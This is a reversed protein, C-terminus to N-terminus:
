AVGRVAPLGVHEWREMIDLMRKNYTTLLTISYHMNYLRDNIKSMDAYQPSNPIEGRNMADFAAMGARSLVGEGLQLPVLGDDRPNMALVTSVIGGDARGWSGQASGPAGAMGSHDHSSKDPGFGGHGGGHDTSKTRRRTRRARRAAWYDPDALNPIDNIGPHGSNTGYRAKLMDVIEPVTQISFHHNEEVLYAGPQSISPTFSRQESLAHEGLFSSYARRGGIEGLSGELADRLSENDRVDMKDLALDAVLSVIPSLATTAVISPVGLPGLVGMSSIIGAVVDGILSSSISLGTNGFSATTKDVGWFGKLSDSMFGTVFEHLGTSFGAKAAYSALGGTSIMGANVYNQGGVYASIGTGLMDLGAKATHSTFSGWLASDLHQSAGSSSIGLGAHAQVTSALQSFFDGRDGGGMAERILASEKAPVVMEGKQLLARYEDHGIDYAGTHHVFFSALGELADSGLEMASSALGPLKSVAATVMMKAVNNAMSQAITSWMSDWFKQFSAGHGRLVSYLQEGMSSTVAQQTDDAISMMSNSMDKYYKQQRLTANFYEATDMRLRASFYDSFSKAETMQTRYREKEIKTSQQAYYVQIAHEDAGCDRAAKVEDNLLAIRKNYTDEDIGAIKKAAEYEASLQKAIVNQADEAAKKAADQAAKEEAKVFQSNEKLALDVADSNVTPTNPSTSPSSDNSSTDDGKKNTTKKPPIAPATSPKWFSFTDRQQQREKTELAELVAIRKLLGANAHQFQALDPKSTSGNKANNALFLKKKEAYDNRLAYLGRQKDIREIQSQFADIKEQFQEKEKHTYFPSAQKEQLSVIKEQMGEASNRYAIKSKALSDGYPSTLHEWITMDGSAVLSLEEGIDKVNKLTTDLLGVVLMGKPGFLIGGILGMGTSEKMWEPLSKYTTLIGSISEGTSTLVTGVEEGWDKFEDKNDALWQTVSGLGERMQPALETGFETMFKGITNRATEELGELTKEWRAFAAETAGTSNAVAKTKKELDKFGRASLATVGLFAEQSEFLKSLPVNYEESAKKLLKLAGALGKAQLLQKGNAYGLNKLMKEMEGVPKYLGLLVARYKTAAEATSGATQTVLSLAGGMEASSISLEHSLSSLDGVVPVLEAFTTQGEREIAFLLDSAETADKVEGAYGKMVKTLATIVQAQETHGANAAKAAIKLTKLARTPETVGGSITQYYAQMLKTSDGLAPELLMIDNRVAGLDRETVRAMDTLASEFNKTQQYMENLGIGVGLGALATNLSFVRRKLNEAELGARRFVSSATDFASITIRTALNSM